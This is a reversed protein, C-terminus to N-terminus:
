KLKVVYINGNESNYVISKTKYSASPYMAIIEGSSITQKKKNKLNMLVIASYLIEKGTDCTEMGVIMDNGFWVPAEIHGLEKKLNGKLDTIFTGKNKSYALIMKKNPSVSAWIYSDKKYPEIIKEKGNLLLVIKKDKIFVMPPFKEKKKSLSISKLKENRQFYVTNGSIKPTKLHRISKEIIKVKKKKKNYLKIDAHKRKNIYIDEVFLINDDNFSVNYGAGNKDSIQNLNKGDYIYLGKYNESTLLFTKGDNMMKPHYFVKNKPINVKEISKIKVVQGFLLIPFSLLFFLAVKKM